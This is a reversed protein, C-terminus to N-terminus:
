MKGIEWLQKNNTYQDNLFKRAKEVGEKNLEFTETIKLDEPTHAIGYPEPWITVLMKKEEDVTIAKLMYRMGDMSGSYEEMKVYNLINFDEKAIM